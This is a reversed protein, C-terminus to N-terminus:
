GPRGPGALAAVVVEAPEAAMRVHFAIPQAVVAGVRRAVVQAQVVVVEAQVRQIDLAQGQGPAEAGGLDALGHLAMDQGLGAQVAGIGQMWAQVPRDSSQGAPGHRRGTGRARLAPRPLSPSGPGPRTRLTYDPRCYEGAPSAPGARQRLRLARLREPWRVAPPSFEPSVPWAPASPAHAL